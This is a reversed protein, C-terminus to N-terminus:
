VGVHLEAFSRLAIGASSLLTRLSPDCLTRVEREREQAYSSEALSVQLGPHCGIETWGQPLASILASLAAATITEPLPEGKGM